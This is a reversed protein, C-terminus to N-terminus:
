VCFIAKLNFSLIPRKQHVVPNSISIHFYFIDLANSINIQSKKIMMKITNYKGAQMLGLYGLGCTCGVIHGTYGRAMTIEIYTNTDADASTPLLLM